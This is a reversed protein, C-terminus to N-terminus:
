LKFQSGLASTDGESIASLRQSYQELKTEYQECQERLMECKDRLVRSLRYAIRAHAVDALLMEASAKDPGAIMDLGVTQIQTLTPQVQTELSSASIM